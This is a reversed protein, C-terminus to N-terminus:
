APATERHSDHGPTESGSSAGHRHQVRGVGPFHSAFVASWLLLSTPGQILTGSLVLMVPLFAARSAPSLARARVIVAVVAAVLGVAFPLGYELIAKPILSLNADPINMAASVEDGTGPGFGTLAALPFQDFARGMVIFPDIFRYSASSLPKWFEASREVFLTFLGSFYVVAAGAAFLSVLAVRGKAGLSFWVLPLGILFAIVGTGSATALLAALFVPAWYSRATIAALTGLAMFQSVLSPELFFFANPKFIGGGYVYEYTRAYETTWRFMEPVGYYIPDIYGLGAFQLVLQLLTAVAAPAACYVFLVDWSIRRESHPDSALFTLTSWALIVMIFSEVSPEFPSWVLSVAASSAALAGLVAGAMVRRRDLRGLNLLFSVICLLFLVPFAVSIKTGPVIFRQFYLSVIIAVVIVVQQAPFRAAFREVENRVGPTPAGPQARAAVRDPSGPEVEIAM